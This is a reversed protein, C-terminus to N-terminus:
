RIRAARVSPSAFTRISGMADAEAPEMVASNVALASRRPHLGVSRRPAAQTSLADSALIFVLDVWDGSEDFARCAIAESRSAGLPILSPGGAPGGGTWEMVMEM